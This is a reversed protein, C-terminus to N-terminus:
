KSVIQTGIGQETFIELLAAHKQRGDIVHTKHVGNKLATLCCNVKPLMGGKIVKKKILQNADTPTMESILKEKSDMVGPADTMLVLKEAKLAIAVEAAVFDANINLTEGGEGKGTPAIVPIFGSEDLTTLIKPNIRTVEGVLGLDIIEPRETEPTLRKKRHRRATILDGDKGSIGVAKGGHRGILSVIEKNVKGGLVMEVVDIAEECTVRQGDIFQSKIGLADLTKSIQPGGGHVIVPNVGVYKMMVIDLAFNTKLEESVMAAGGYKIVITKGYFSKIFPLAELLVEAKELDKNM